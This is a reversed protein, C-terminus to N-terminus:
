KFLKIHIGEEEDKVVLLSSILLLDLTLVIVFVM